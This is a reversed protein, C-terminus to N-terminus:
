KAVRVSLMSTFYIHCNLSLLFAIAADNWPVVGACAYLLTVFGVTSYKSFCTWDVVPAILTVANEEPIAAMVVHKKASNSFPAWM